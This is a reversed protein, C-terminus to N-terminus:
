FTLARFTFGEDMPDSSQSILFSLSMRTVVAFVRPGFFTLRCRLALDVRRFDLLGYPIFFFSEPLPLSTIPMSFTAIDKDDVFLM